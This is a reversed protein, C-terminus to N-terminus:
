SAVLEAALLPRTSTTYMTYTTDRGVYPLHDVVLSFALIGDVSWAVLIRMNRRRLEGDSLAHLIQWDVTRRRVRPGHTLMLMRYAGSRYCAPFLRLDYVGECLNLSGSASMNLPGDFVARDTQRVRQSGLPSREITIQAGPHSCSRGATKASTLMGYKSDRRQFGVHM